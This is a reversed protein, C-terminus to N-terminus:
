SRKLVFLGQARSTVVLIGSAFFPYNSWSGGFGSEDAEDPATDFHAVPAPNLPNGIDLVRVGHQYNSAYLFSGAVYHNHDTAPTPGFYQAVVVPDELDTVDWVLTRTTAATGRIEDLEDNLFFYRHDPTLWGQHAYGVDPYDARAIAVPSAKDTLDAVSVHTENAGVCIERGTHALDPGAYVVCQVDHTYGTAARGTLPDAFCGAFTPNTPTRIDVVHLGGGCTTGGGNAGVLYAFGTAENIAINHVSAVGPYHATADFTVPAGSVARLRTLDFVQMGHPGAGDSVMFAHDAYVKVDHWLNPNAGAPIPLFGAYVPNLPDALSVFATGDRRGVIAWETGTVPDTWGWLDNLDVDPGGGLAGIPLYALLDLGTCPFPGAAGAACPVVAGVLPGGVPGTVAVAIPVSASAPGSTATINATGLGAATVRGAGDVPLAGPNDSSWVLPQGPMAQGNSDVVAASLTVGTGLVSLTPTPVTISVGAQVRRVTVVVTDALMGASAVVTDVGVALATVIGTQSVSTVGAAVHAWTVTVDALPEGAATRVTAQLTVQRGLAGIAVSDASLSLSAPETSSAPPEPEVL